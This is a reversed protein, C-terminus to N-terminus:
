QLWRKHMLGPSIVWQRGSDVLTTALGGVDLL